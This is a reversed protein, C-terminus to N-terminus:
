WFRRSTTNRTFDCNGRNKRLHSRCFPTYSSRWYTTNLKCDLNERSASSVLSVALLLRTRVAYVDDCSTSSSFSNWKLLYRQLGLLISIAAISFRVPVCIEYKINSQWSQRPLKTYDTVFGLTNYASCMLKNLFNSIYILKCSQKFGNHEDRPRM